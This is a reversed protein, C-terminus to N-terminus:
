PTVNASSVGYNYVAEGGCTVFSACDNNLCDPDRPNELRAYIKYDTGGSEYCYKARPDYPMTKIYVVEDEEWPNGWDCPNTDCGNIRGDGSSTPYGGKDNYYMELAKQIQSLDSKRRADRAKVQSSTYSGLGIITLLGIIAIVILLEILTFAQGQTKIKIPKSMKSHLLM